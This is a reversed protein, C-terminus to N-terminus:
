KASPKVSVVVGMDRELEHVARWVVREASGRVSFFPVCSHPATHQRVTADRLCLQTRVRAIDAATALFKATVRM